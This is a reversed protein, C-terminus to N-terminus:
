RIAKKAHIKTNKKSDGDRKKEKTDAILVANV